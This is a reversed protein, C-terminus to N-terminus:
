KNLVEKIFKNALDPWKQVTKNINEKKGDCTEKTAISLGHPGKAFLKYNVKINNKIMADKLIESNKYNVCNDTKTTWIFAPPTNKNVRKEISFKKINEKTIKNNLFIRRSEKHCLKNEFSVVPYCYITGKIYKSTIKDTSLIGVLHGGASFGCLFIDKFKKILLELATKGEIYQTPHHKDFCSYRLIAFNYKYKKFKNGVPLAERESCYCYGGGPVILILPRNKYLYHIELTGDICKKNLTKLNIKKM